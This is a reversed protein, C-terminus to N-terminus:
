IRVKMAANGVLPKAIEFATTCTVGFALVYNM